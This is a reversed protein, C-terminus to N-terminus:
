SGRARAQRRRTGAAVALRAAAACTASLAHSFFPELTAYFLWPTAGCDAADGVVRGRRTVDRPRRWASVAGCGSCRTPRSWCARRTSIPGATAASTPPCAQRRCLWRRGRLGGRYAPLALLALGIPYKNVVEGTAPNRTRGTASRRSARTAALARGRPLVPDREGSRSRPRRRALAPPRLPLRRRRVDPQRHRRASGDPGGGAGGLCAGPDAGHEPALDHAHVRPARGVGRRPDRDPPVGLEGLMRPVEHVLAEPGCVFCLTDDPRTSWPKSSRAASAARSARGCRRRRARPPRGTAFGARGALETLEDDFAFETATRASYLVSVSPPAESAGLAEHLMARLPAIGSGGAVFLVAPETSAIPFCSRASPGEIEVLTGATSRRCTRAPRATTALAWLLELQGNRAAEHPGVAISYPRKSGARRRASSCRRAPASTLRAGRACDAAPRQAAHRAIFATRHRGSLM